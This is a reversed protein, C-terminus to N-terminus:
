PLDITLVKTFLLYCGPGVLCAAAVLIALNKRTRQLLLIGLSLMFLISLLWFPIRGTSFLLCFFCLIGLTSATRRQDVITSDDDPQVPTLAAPHDKNKSRGATAIRTLYLVGGLVATILGAFLPTDPLEITSDIRVGKMVLERSKLTKRLEPGTIFVPDMKMEALKTQMAETKMVQRLLNVFFAIRDPPTKKPAWFYQMSNRVADIGQEAATPVDPFAAHRKTHLIALARIGGDKFHVFEGANFVTVDIHEGLLDGFRKAGGGTPVYRFAAGPVTQELQLAGFHSLAGLNAGFRITEPKDRAADLLDNLNKFRSSDKVCVMSSARGIAAIPEFAEPGYEVQETLRASLIGDHLNLITYGDPEANKVRRSGITGGAGPVNIVALPQQLLGEQQIVGQVIRTFTDSEGGPGFPVVIQIPREPFEARCVAGVLFAIVFFLSSRILAASRCSGQLWGTGSQDDPILAATVTGTVFGQPLRLKKPHNLNQSDATPCRVHRPELDGREFPPHFEACSLDAVSKVEGGNCTAAQGAM